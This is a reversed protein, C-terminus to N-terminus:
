IIEPRLFGTCLGISVSSTDYRVKLDGDCDDALAMGCNGWKSLAIALPANLVYKKKNFISVEPLRVYNKQM